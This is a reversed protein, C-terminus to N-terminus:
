VKDLVDVHKPFFLFMYDYYNNKWMKEVSSGLIEIEAEFGPLQTGLPGWWFSPAKFLVTNVWRNPSVFRNSPSMKQHIGERFSVNRGQFYAM